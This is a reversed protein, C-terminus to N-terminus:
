LIKKLPSSWKVNKKIKKTTAIKKFSITFVMINLIKNFFYFTKMQKIIFQQLANYYCYEIYVKPNIYIIKKFKKLFQKIYM